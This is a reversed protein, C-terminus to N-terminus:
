HQIANQVGELRADDPIQVTDGMLVQDSIRPDYVEWGQGAYTDICVYDSETGHENLEPSVYGWSEFLARDVTFQCDDMLFYDTDHIKFLKADTYGGRVDCGGHVQLLVYQDGDRELKQYQLTQDFNSDYNYTNESGGVMTFDHIELWEEQRSSIGYFNDSDWDHCKMRNFRRCMDDLELVKALHHFTNAYVVGQELVAQPEKLFDRKSNAEWRRGYHDGSDGLAAGTNTTFMTLLLKNLSKQTM